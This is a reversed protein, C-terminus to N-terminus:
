SKKHKGHKKHHIASFSKQTEELEKRVDRADVLYDGVKQLITLQLTDLIKEIRALREGMSSIRSEFVTKMDIVKELKDRLVSLRESVVQESIETIIDSSMAEQYPQYQPYANGYDQYGESQNQYGESQNQYGGGYNQPQEQGGSAMSPQMGSYQGEGVPNIEQAGPNSYEEEFQEPQQAAMKPLAPLEKESKGNESVANKIKSQSM